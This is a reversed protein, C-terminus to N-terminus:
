LRGLVRLKKRQFNLNPLKQKISQIESMNEITGTKMLLFYKVLRKGLEGPLWAHYSPLSLNASPYSPPNSETSSIHPTKLQFVLWSWPSHFWSWPNKKYSQIPITPHCKQKDILGSDWCPSASRFTFELFNSSVSSPLRPKPSTSDHLKRNLSAVFFIWHFTVFLDISCFMINLNFLFLSEHGWTETSTEPSDSMRKTNELVDM